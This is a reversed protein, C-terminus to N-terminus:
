VFSEYGSSKGQANHSDCSYEHKPATHHSSRANLVENSVRFILDCNTDQRQLKIM